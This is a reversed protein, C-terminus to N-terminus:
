ESVAWAVALGQGDTVGSIYGECAFVMDKDQCQAYLSNGDEFGGEANAPAIGGLLVLLSAVMVTYIRTQWGEGM